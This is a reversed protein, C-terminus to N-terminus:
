GPKAMEDIFREYKKKNINIILWGTGPIAPEFSSSWRVVTGDGDAAVEVRGAYNRVPAGSLMVYDYSSYPEVAVLKEHYVYRGERVLRECGVGYNQADGDKIVELTMDPSPSRSFDAAIPWLEELPINLRKEVSVTKM